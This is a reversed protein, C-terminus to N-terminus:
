LDVVEIDGNEHVIVDQTRTHILVSDHKVGVSMRVHDVGNSGGNPTVVVIDQDHGDVYARVDVGVDWGNVSASMGSSKSGMRSALGKNGQIEAYFRAM